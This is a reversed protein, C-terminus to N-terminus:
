SSLAECLRSFHAAHAAQEDPDATGDFLQTVEALREPYFAALLTEPELGLEDRSCSAFAHSTAGAQAVLSKELRDLLGFLRRSAPETATIVDEATRKQDRKAAATFAAFAASDAISECMAELLPRLARLLEVRALVPELKLLLLAVLQWALQYRDGLAAEPMRYSARSSSRWLREEERQDGRALAAVLLRFREDSTLQDYQREIKTV